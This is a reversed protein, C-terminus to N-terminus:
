CCSRGWTRSVCILVIALLTIAFPGVLGRFTRFNERFRLYWALAIIFGVKCFESPQINVVDRGMVSIRIWRYSNNIEPVFPLGFHKGALLIMLMVLIVGYIAYSYPGLRRYDFLNIGILCVFGGGIYISQRLWYGSYRNTVAATGDEELAPNGVSYITVLSICLLAATAL